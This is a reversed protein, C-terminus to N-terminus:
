LQAAHRGDDTLVKECTLAPAIYEQEWVPDFVQELNHDYDLLQSAYNEDRLAEAAFQDQPEACYEEILKRGTAYHDRLSCPRLWNGMQGDRGGSHEYDSQWRRIAEFYPIRFLDDLTGGDKYVDLINAASYPVFVCPMVKGNWDIYLYGNGAAICGMTVTGCNWFDILMIKRERIIRWTQRWMRLRQEPTVMLDVTYSRGIPMYQFIWGFVAQQKSFFFDIFEDSLIEEANERTATISIGFPVGARRLHEMACLIQRFVGAGRRADTRTELGEVSIAPVINGLEALREATSRDIFCGNTYFQFFCERHEDALDLINKGASKYILPEGGSITFFRVAWLEKAETIIRNLVEWELKCVPMGSSAYCGTCRLNCANTPSIVLFSPPSSGKHRKAFEAVARDM